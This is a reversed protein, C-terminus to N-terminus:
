LPPGPEKAITSGTSYSTDTTDRDHEIFSATKCAMCCRPLKQVDWPARPVRHPFPSIPDSGEQLEELALEVVAQPHVDPVDGVPGVAHCGVVLPHM